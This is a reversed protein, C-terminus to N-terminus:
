DSYPTSHESRDSHPSSRHDDLISGTVLEASPPPPPSPSTSSERKMLVAAAASTAPLQGGTLHHHYAAAAAAAAYNSDLSTSAPGASGAATLLNMGPFVPYDSRLFNGALFGASTGYGFATPFYGTQLPFIPPRIPSDNASSPFVAALLNNQHQQQQQQQLQQSSMKWPDTAAPHHHQHHHHSSYRSQKERVPQPHHDSSKRKQGVVNAAENLQHGGSGTSQQLSQQSNQYVLQEIAKLVDGNAADLTSKLSSRKMQPFLRALTDLPMRKNDGGGVAVTEDEEEEEEEEEEMMM